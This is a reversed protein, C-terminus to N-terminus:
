VGPGASMAAPATVSVNVDVLLPLQRGAEAVSAMRTLCGGVASAPRLWVSQEVVGVMAREPIMPPPLLVPVHLLEPLPASVGAVGTRFLTYAMVGASMVAPETIKVSVDVLLPGQVAAVSVTLIAMILGAVTVAPGLWNKHEVEPETFRVPETVPNNFVPRHVTLPVPANSGPGPAM